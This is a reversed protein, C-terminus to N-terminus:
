RLMAGTPRTAGGHHRCPGSWSARVQAGSPARALAACSGPLRLSRWVNAMTASCICVICVLARQRKPSRAGFVQPGPASCRAGCPDARHPTYDPACTATQASPPTRAAHQGARSRAAHQGARMTGNPRLAPRAGFVHRRARCRAPRFGALTCRLTCDPTCTCNSHPTARVTGNPCPGFWIHIYIEVDKMMKKWLISTNKRLYYFQFFNFSLFQIEVNKLM